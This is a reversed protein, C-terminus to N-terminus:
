SDYGYQKLLKYEFIVMSIFGCLISFWLTTLRIGVAVTIAVSIPVGFFSLMGVIAAETSGVGGPLMSAAGVLMSLPYIAIATTFPIVVGMYELLLVFAMATAGWALLGLIVSITIDLPDSWVKVGRIGSKIMRALKSLRGWRRLRLRVMIFSIWRPNRALVIVVSIVLTVFVAIYPFFGFQASAMSAILLVSILDFTREYLFASIVSYHPVSLQKLYRIRVLEGVKGPTATFAFGSIYALFGIGAAISYGARYLLWHWRLYRLLYSSVSLLLLTPFVTILEPLRGFISKNSDVWILASLYLLTVVGFTISARKIKM